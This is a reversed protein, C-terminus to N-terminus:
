RLQQWMVFGELSLSFGRMTEKLGPLDDELAELLSWLLQQSMQLTRKRTQSDGQSCM